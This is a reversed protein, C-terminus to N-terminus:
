RDAGPQRSSPSPVPSAAAPPSAPAPSASGSSSGSTVSFDEAAGAPSGANTPAGPGVLAETDTSPDTNMSSNDGQSPDQPSQPCLNNKGAWTLGACDGLACATLLDRCMSEKEDLMLYASARHQLYIPNKPRLAAAKSFSHAALAPLGNMLLATGLADHARDLTDDLALAARADEAAKDPKDLKLFVEARATTALANRPDLTVAANLKGLAAEPAPWLSKYEPLLSVLIEQSKLAQICREAELRGLAEGTGPTASLLPQVARDYAELLAVRRSYIRGAVDLLDPRALAEALAEGPRDPRGLAVRVEVQMHPPYGRLEKGTPQTSYLLLALAAVNPPEPNAATVAGAFRMEPLAALRRMAEELAANEAGVRAAYEATEARIPGAFARIASFEGPGREAGRGTGPCLCLLLLAVPVIRQIM